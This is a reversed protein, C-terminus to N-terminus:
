VIHSVIPQHEDVFARVQKEIQAATAQIIIPPNGPFAEGLILNFAHARSEVEVLIFNRGDIKIARPIVNKPHEPVAQAAITYAALISENDMATGKPKLSPM